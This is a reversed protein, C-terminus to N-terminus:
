LICSVQRTTAPTAGRSSSGGPPGLGKVTNLRSDLLLVGYKPTAVLAGIDGFRTTDRLVSDHLAVGSGELVISPPGKARRCTTGLAGGCLDRLLQNALNSTEHMSIHGARLKRSRRLNARALSQCSRPLHPSAVVPSGRYLPDASRRMLWSRHRVVM